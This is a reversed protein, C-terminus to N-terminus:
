SKLRKSFLDRLWVILTAVLILLLGGAALLNSTQHSMPTNFIVKSVLQFFTHVNDQLGM